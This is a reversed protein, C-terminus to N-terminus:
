ITYINICIDQRLFNSTYPLAQQRKVFQWLFTQKMITDDYDDDAGINRYEKNNEKWLCEQWIKKCRILHQISELIYM